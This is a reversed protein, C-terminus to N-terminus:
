TWISSWLMIWWKCPTGIAQHFLSICDPAIIMATDGLYVAMQSVRLQWTCGVHADCTYRCQPIVEPQYGAALHAQCKHTPVSTKIYNQNNRPSKHIEFQILSHTHIRLLLDILYM